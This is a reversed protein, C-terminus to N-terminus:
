HRENEVLIKVNIEIKETGTTLWSTTHVLQLICKFYLMQM